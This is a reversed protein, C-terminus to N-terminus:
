EYEEEDPKADFGPSVTAIGREVRVVLKTVEATISIGYRNAEATVTDGVAVGLQPDLDVSIEDVAQLDRLKSAAKARLEDGEDNNSQYVYVREDAGFLSQAASVNGSADAYLDVVAREALEGKGLAVIHNYPRDDLHATFSVREIGAEDSWDRSPVASAICRGRSPSWSLALRMGASQLMSCIGSYGDVYRAFRYSSVSRGSDEGSAEFLGSLGLREIMSSLLANCEGSVSLHGQGADPRVVHDALVGHWTRGEYSISDSTPTHQPKRVGVVGGYETGDAYVLCGPELVTDAGASLEFDNEDMGIALDLTYDRLCLRDVREADTAILEM